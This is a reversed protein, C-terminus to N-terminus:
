DQHPCKGYYGDAQNCNRCLVRYGPPYNQKKLFRYLPMNIEKCHKSGNGNIHDISLFEQYSEGCCACSMAGNSYHFLVNKRLLSREEFGKNSRRKNDCTKCVNLLNHAMKSHSPFHLNNHPKEVECKYCKQLREDPNIVWHPEIYQKKFKPRPRTVSPNHPCFGYHAFASNCNHCLVQMKKKHKNKLLYNYYNMTNKHKKYDEQSGGELHDIALFQIETEGCCRCSPIDLHSYYCLLEIRLKSAKERYSKNVVKRNCKKCIARFGFRFQSCSHFYESTYPLSIKCSTCIKTKPKVKPFRCEECRVVLGRFLQSGVHIEEKGCDCLCRWRSGGPNEGHSYEVVIFSGFKQGTLNRFKPHKPLKKM